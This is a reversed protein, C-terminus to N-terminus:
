RLARDIEREVIHLGALGPLRDIRRDVRQGVARGEADGFLHRILFRVEPEPMVNAGVPKWLRRLALSALRQARPSDALRQEAQGAYFDIHRGEQKMIRGLLEALLPHGATASLRAYGAQTTWENVAGWTMHIAIWADGALAAGALHTVPMLRDRWGLRGRLAEIRARSPESGHAVLVRGLAEGHWYEEHVWMTLFATVGPDRHAPTLLLDRLYCITHHEVDHMYQICRLSDPDLPRAAFGAELDLDDVAVRGSRGVWSEVDVRM